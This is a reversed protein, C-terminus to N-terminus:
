IFNFVRTCVISEALLLPGEGVSEQVEGEVEEGFGDGGWEM